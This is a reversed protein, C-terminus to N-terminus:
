YKLTLYNKLQMKLILKQKNKIKLKKQQNKIIAIQYEIYNEKTNTVEHISVSHVTETSAAKNVAKDLM